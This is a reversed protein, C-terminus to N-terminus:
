GWTAHEEHITEMGDYEDIFWKVDNPVEVVALKACSGNAKAKLEEVAQILAPHTRVENDDGVYVDGKSIYEPHKVAPYGLQLMRDYCARSIGFGGYCKNIVVKMTKEETENRKPHRLEEMVNYESYRKRLSEIRKPLKDYEKLFISLLFQQIEMMVQYYKGELEYERDTHVVPVSAVKCSDLLKIDDSHDENFWDENKEESHFEVEMVNELASVIDRISASHGDFYCEGNIYLREWDGEESSIRRIITTM